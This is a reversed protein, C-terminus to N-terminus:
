QQQQKPVIFRVLEKGRSDKSVGICSSVNPTWFSVCFWMFVSSTVRSGVGVNFRMFCAVMFTKKGSFWHLDKNRLNVALKM